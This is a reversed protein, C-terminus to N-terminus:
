QRGLVHLHKPETHTRSEKVLFLIAFIGSEDAEDNEDEDIVPECVELETYVRTRREQGNHIKRAIYCKGQRPLILDKPQVEVTLTKQRTYQRASIFCKRSMQLPKAQNEISKQHHYLDDVTIILEYVVRSEGDRRFDEVRALRFQESDSFQQLLNRVRILLM